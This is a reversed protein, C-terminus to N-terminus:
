CQRGGDSLLSDGSSSLLRGCVARTISPLHTGRRDRGHSPSQRRRSRRPTLGWGEYHLGAVYNKEGGLSAPAAAAAAAGDLNGQGQECSVRRRDM